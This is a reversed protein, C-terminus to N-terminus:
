ENIVKEYLKFLHEVREEDSEFAKDKYIKDTLVDLERHVRRLDDPMKDPDYLKALSREFYKERIRLLESVKEEIQEKLSNKAEPIPFNNYSIVSSYRIDTKIRGSTYKVWAVHIRSMLIAFDFLSADYVVNGANSVVYNSDIFGFPIYDRRETTHIPIIIATTPQYTRQKFRNPYEAYKVTCSAKSKKRFKIIEDLRKAIPKIKYAEKLDEDEIWLCWRFKNSIYDSAGVYVKIFKKSDPFDKLLQEKEIKTLLFNGDDTPKNGYKMEPLRSIPKARRPLFITSGETLYANINKVIRNNKETYIYKPKNNRKRLSVIVCIVNAKNKANNTWKFSQHAFGIEIGDKLVPQWLLNVQEGQCVSNTSVFACETRGKSVLIYRKAKYFWCSIYDLNKYNKQDKFNFEVDSKQIDNQLSSGLYPPNGIIFVEEAENNSCVQEWNLRTANGCIINGGDKLPLSPKLDGFEEKFLIDMQHEALWLSLIAVEHAFDDLEIGYFNRLPIYSFKMENPLERYVLMELKRLEKYAIILFNGSGCAPDFVKVESLRKLLKKLKTESKKSKELEEYFDNLFLPEIVKMINSVSTYHMGLGARQDPHVVAQIMSGFIDPNIEAWNLDGIDLLAGRSKKTFKPIAHNEAFLGGNVYPFNNLYDPTNKPRKELNMIEFVKSLYERLDSGDPQTHSGVSDTFLGKPFIDTDEAFYCFLLRTLFVNLSHFSKADSKPNDKKILDFLKALKEAAKVDVPNEHKFEKKEIGALPLFFDFKKNFEKLPFEIKEDLKTDLAKITKYDTAIVFRPDHKQTSSDQRLREFEKDIDKDFHAFFIKKKIVVENENKSLNRSGKKVRTITNKPTGYALLMDYIFSEKDIKKILSKVNEEIQSINM